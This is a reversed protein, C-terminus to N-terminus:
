KWTLRLTSNWLAPMSLKTACEKGCTVTDRYNWHEFQKGCVSCELILPQPRQWSKTNM